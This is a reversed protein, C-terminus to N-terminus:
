VVSVDLAGLGAIVAHLRDGRNVAAVGSPTGTFILDGPKLDFLKGLEVIIEAVSWIMESIDGTQRRQGNVDLTIAGTSLPAEARVIAGIPASHDFGKATEWPRGLKKAAAQLDRRTMDLGVAHGFVKAEPGLAVVLEVEHHVDNSMSPYPFRGNTVLADPPKAFFFPPDRGVVGGMEKVHEAYNRGVCYVRHVPFRLDSGAIPLSVQPAAAFALTM